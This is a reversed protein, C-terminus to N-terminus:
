RFGKDKEIKKECAIMSLFYLYINSTIKDLDRNNMYILKPLLSLISGPWSLVQKQWIRVIIM